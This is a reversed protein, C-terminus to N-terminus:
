TKENKEETINKNIISLLADSRHLFVNSRKSLKKTRPDSFEYWERQDKSWPMIKKDTKSLQFREANKEDFVMRGVVYGGCINSTRAFVREIEEDPIEPILPRLYVLVPINADHLRQITEIRKEPDPANPELKRATKFGLLSVCAVMYQKNRMHEHIRKLTAITKLSLNKKTSFTISLGLDVVAKIIKIAQDERQFFENDYGCQILQVKKPLQKLTPIIQDATREPFGQFGPEHIYCYKCGYSCKGGMSIIARNGNVQYNVVM